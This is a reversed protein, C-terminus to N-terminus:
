EDYNDKIYDSIIKHYSKKTKTMSLKKALNKDKLVKDIWLGFDDKDINVHYRFKENLINSLADRLEVINKIIPGDNIWFNKDPTADIIVRKGSSGKSLSTKNASKKIEAQTSDVGTILDIIKFM